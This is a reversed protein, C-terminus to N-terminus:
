RKRQILNISAETIKRWSYANWYVGEKSLTYFVHDCYFKVLQFSNTNVIFAPHRGSLRPGKTEAFPGLVMSAGDPRISHSPRLVLPLRALESRESLARRNM